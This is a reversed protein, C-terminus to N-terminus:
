QWFFSYESQSRVLGDSAISLRYPWRRDPMLGLEAAHGVGVNHQDLARLVHRRLLRQGEGVDCVRGPVADLKGLHALAVDHPDPAAPGDTERDLLQGFLDAAGLLNIRDVLIRVTQFNCLRMAHNGHIPRSRPMSALPKRLVSEAACLAMLAVPSSPSLASVTLSTILAVRFPPFTANIPSKKKLVLLNGMPMNISFVMVFNSALARVYSVRCCYIRREDESFDTLLLGRERERERDISGSLALVPTKWIVELVDRLLIVHLEVLLYISSQLGDHHSRVAALQILRQSRQWDAVIYGPTWEITRVDGVESRPIRVPGISTATRFFQPKTPSREKTHDLISVKRVFPFARSAGHESESPVLLRQTKSLYNYLGLIRSEDVLLASYRWRLPSGCETVVPWQQRYEVNGSAAHQSKRKGYSIKGFRNVEDIALPYGLLVALEDSEIRGRASVTEVTRHRKVSLVDIPAAGPLYAFLTKENNHMAILEDAPMRMRREARIEVASYRLWEYVWFLLQGCCTRPSPQQSGARVNRPAGDVNYKERRRSKIVRHSSSLLTCVAPLCPLQKWIPAFIPRCQLM